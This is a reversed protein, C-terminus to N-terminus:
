YMQLPLAGGPGAVLAWIEGAGVQVEDNAAAAGPQTLTFPYKGPALDVHPAEAMTQDSPQVPVKVDQGAITFTVTDSGPNAFYIRAKGSPPLVGAARAGADDRILLNIDTGGSSNRALDLSLQGQEPNQFLLAAKEDTPAVTAPLEAWGRAALEARYLKLVAPLAAPSVVTLGRRFPGSEGTYETYGSPVPLGDKDEATLAESGSSGGPAPTSADATEEGSSLGSTVVTVSTKDGLKLLSISATADGKTFDLSAVADTVLASSEDEQWGLSALEQRYFDVLKSITEVTTYTLTESAADYELESADAAVPLGSTAAATESVAATPEAVPTETPELRTATPAPTATPPLATATPPLATATPPVPTATPPVPTAAPASTPAAAVQPTAAPGSCAAMFVVLVLAIASSYLRVSRSNVQM